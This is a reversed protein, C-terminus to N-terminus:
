VIWASNGVTVQFISGTLSFQILAYADWYGAMLSEAMLTLCGATLSEAVVALYRATLSGAVLTSYGATLSEAVLTLCGAMLLWIQIIPLDIAM